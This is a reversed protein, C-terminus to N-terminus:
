QQGGMLSNCVGILVLSLGALGAILLLYLADM